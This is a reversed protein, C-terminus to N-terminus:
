QTRQYTSLHAANFQICCAVCTFTMDGYEIAIVRFDSQSDSNIQLINFSSKM